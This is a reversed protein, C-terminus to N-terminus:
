ISRKWTIALLLPWPAPCASHKCVPSNRWRWLGHRRWRSPLIKNCLIIIIIVIEPCRCNRRKYILQEVVNSVPNALGVPIYTYLSHVLLMSKSTTTMTMVVQLHNRHQMQRTFFVCHCMFFVCTWRLIKCVQYIEMECFSIQVLSFCFLYVIPMLLGIESLFELSGLILQDVTGECFGGCCSRRSDHERERERLLFYV